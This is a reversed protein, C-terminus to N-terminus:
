ARKSKGEGISPIRDRFEANEMIALSKLYKNYSSVDKWGGQMMIWADDIGELKAETVGTAKWSYLGHDESKGLSSKWLVNRSYRMSVYHCDYSEPGPKMNNASFLYWEPECDQLNMRNFVEGLQPPIVVNREQINKSEEKYLYIRDPHRKGIHKIQIRSIESERFLTYFMVSMYDQMSQLYSGAIRMLEQQQERDYAFNRGGGTTKTPIEAWPNGKEGELGNIMIPYGAKGLEKFITHFHNRTNNFHRPGANRVELMFELYRMAYSYDFDRLQINNLGEQQLWALLMRQKDRYDKATYESKNQKRDVVEKVASTLKISARTAKEAENKQKREKEQKVIQYQTDSKVYGNKLKKNIEKVLRNAYEKRQALDQIRNFDQEREMELRNLDINWVYYKIRWRQDKSTTQPIILRALKYPFSM